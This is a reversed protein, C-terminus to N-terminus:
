KAEQLDKVSVINPVAIYDFKYKKAIEEIDEKDQVKLLPIDGLRSGSIRVSKNQTVTGSEKFQVKIEDEAVEVIVAQLKGDEFSVLDGPRVAKMMQRGDVQIIEKTTAGTVYRDERVRATEGM